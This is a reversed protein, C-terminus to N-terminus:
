FYLLSFEQIKLSLFCCVQHCNFFFSRSDGNCRLESASSCKVEKWSLVSFFRGAPKRGVAAAPGGCFAVPSSGVGSRVCLQVRFRGLSAAATSQCLKVSVQGQTLSLRLASVRDRGGGRREPSRAGERSAAPVPLLAM